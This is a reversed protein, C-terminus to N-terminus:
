ELFLLGADRALTELRPVRNLLQLPYMGLNTPNALNIAQVTQLLGCRRVPTHLSVWDDQLQLSGVRPRELVLSYSVQLKDQKRTNTRVILTRSVLKQLGFTPSQQHYIVSHHSRQM